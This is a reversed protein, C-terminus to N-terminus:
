QFYSSTISDSHSQFWTGQHIRGEPSPTAQLSRILTPNFSSKPKNKKITSISQLKFHDFWLPISVQLQLSLAATMDYLLKFHDFWLPISVINALRTTLKSCKLLKFHDFWLPISVRAMLITRPWWTFYSSTISDSHSQFLVFAFYSEHNKRTAQLSRILTPNFSYGSQFRGM